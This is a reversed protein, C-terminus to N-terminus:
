KVTVNITKRAGNVAIAYITCKGEGKATIKGNADVTAVAKNSSAYRIEAAHGKSLQAKKTAILTVKAGVKATKGKKLSLTKKAVTVASGNTFKKDLAGAVYATMSTTVVVKKGDLLEM